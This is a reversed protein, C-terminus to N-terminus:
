PRPIAKALTGMNRTKVSGKQWIREMFSRRAICVPCEYLREDLLNVGPLHEDLAEM